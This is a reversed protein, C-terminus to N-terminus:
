KKINKILQSVYKKIFNRFNSNKQYFHEINPRGKLTLKQLLAFYNGNAEKLNVKLKTKVLGITTKVKSIAPRIKGNLFQQLKPNRQYYYDIVGKLYAKSIITKAGYLRITQTDKNAYEYKYPEVGVGFDLSKYGKETMWKALELILIKQMRFKSLKQERTSSIQHYIISDKKKLCIAMAKHTEEVDISFLVAINEEMWAKIRKHLTERMTTGSYISPTNTANWRAIHFTFFAELWKKVKKEEFTEIVTIKYGFEKTLKNRYNRTNPKNFVKLFTEVSYEKGSFKVLPNKISKVATVKFGIQKIARIVLLYEFSNVLLKGSFFANFNIVKLTAIIAEQKIYTPTQPLFLLNLADSKEEGAISLTKGKLNFPIAGILTDSKYIFAIQLTKINGVQLVGSAVFPNPIAATQWLTSYIQWDNATLNNIVKINM